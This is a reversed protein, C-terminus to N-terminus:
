KQMKIAASEVATQLGVVETLFLSRPKNEAFILGAHDLVM